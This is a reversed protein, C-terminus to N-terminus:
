TAERASKLRLTGLSLILSDVEQDMPVLLGKLLRLVDESPLMLLEITEELLTLFERQKASISELLECFYMVEKETATMATM